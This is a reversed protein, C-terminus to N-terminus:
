WTVRQHRNRCGHRAVVSDRATMASSPYGCCSGLRVPLSPSFCTGRVFFGRWRRDCVQVPPRQFSGCDIMGWRFLGRTGGRTSPRVTPQAQISPTPLREIQRHCLVRPRPSVRLPRPMACTGDRAERKAKAERALAHPNCCRQFRPVVVRRLMVRLSGVFHHPVTYVDSKGGTQPHHPPRGRCGTRVIGQRTGRVQLLTCFRASRSTLTPLRSLPSM